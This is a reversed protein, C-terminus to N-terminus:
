ETVFPVRTRQEDFALVFDPALSGQFDDSVGGACRDAFSVTLGDQGVWWSYAQRPAAAPNCAALGSGALFRYEALLAPATAAYLGTPASISPAFVQAQTSWFLWYRDGHLRVHPRELENNVGDATVLPPLLVWCDADRRAVGICGRYAGQYTADANAVSATFLIYETGDAPDRFWAPDRFAEISGISGTAERALAYHVGDSAFCEQPVSWMGTAGSMLDITASSAFIRQEFSPKTEGRRGAATFYLTVLGDEIITSGSWERSGPTFGDPFVPGLDTWRGGRKHLKRIRAVAHRTDPDDCVAASLAFWLEGGGVVARRGDPCEAPWVDWLWMGEVISPGSGPEFVPLEPMSRAALADLHARTWATTTM